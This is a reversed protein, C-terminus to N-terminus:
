FGYGLIFRPQFIKKRYVIIVRIFRLNVLHAMENHVELVQPKRVTWDISMIPYLERLAKRMYDARDPYMQLSCLIQKETAEGTIQHFILWM